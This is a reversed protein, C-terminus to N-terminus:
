RHRSLQPFLSTRVSNSNFSVSSEFARSISPSRVISSPYSLFLPPSLALTIASSRTTLLVGRLIRLVEFEDASRYRTGPPSARLPAEAPPEPHFFYRPPLFALPSSAAPPYRPSRSLPSTLATRPHSPVRPRKPPTEITVPIVPLPPRACSPFGRTEREREKEERGRPNSKERKRTTFKQNQLASETATTRSLTGGKKKKEGGSFLTTSPM